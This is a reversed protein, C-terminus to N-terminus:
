NSGTAEVMVYRREAEGAHAVWVSASASAYGVDPLGCMIRAMGAITAPFGFTVRVRRRVETRSLLLRLRLRVVVDAAYTSVAMFGAFILGLIKKDDNKRRGKLGPVHVVSVSCRLVVMAIQVNAIHLRYHFRV